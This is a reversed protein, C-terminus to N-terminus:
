FSASVMSGDKTDELKWVQNTNMSRMENEMAERWKSSHPSRMAEEYSTSDGDMHIEESMYIEYDDPIASKRVRQLRRLNEQNPV